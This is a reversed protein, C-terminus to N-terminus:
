TAAMTSPHGARPCQVDRGQAVLAYILNEGAWTVSVRRSAAAHPRRVLAALNDRDSGAQALQGAAKVLQERGTLRDRGALSRDRLPRAPAEPMGYFHLSSALGPLHDRHRSMATIRRMTGPPMVPCRMTGALALAVIGLQLCGLPASRRLMALSRLRVLGPARCRRPPAAARPPQRLDGRPAPKGPDAYRDPQGPGPRALRVALGPVVCPVPVQHGTPTCM